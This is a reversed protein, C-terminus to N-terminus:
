QDPDLWVQAPEPVNRTILEGELFHEKGMRLTLANENCQPGMSVNFRVVGDKVIGNTLPARNAYCRRVGLEAGLAGPTYTVFGEFTGDDNTKTVTLSWAAPAARWATATGRMSTPLTLPAGPPPATFSAITAKVTRQVVREQRDSDSDSLFYKEGVKFWYQCRTPLNLSPSQLPGGGLMGSTARMTTCIRERDDVKWEGGLGTQVPSSRSATGSGAIAGNSMFVIEFVGGTPTLGVITRQVLERRFEEASIKTAGADLVDGLNNQARALSPVSLSSIGLAMSLVRVARAFLASIM